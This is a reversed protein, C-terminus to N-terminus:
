AAQKSIGELVELMSDLTWPMGLTFLREGVIQGLAVFERANKHTVKIKRIRAFDLILHEGAMKAEELTDPMFATDEKHSAMNPEM